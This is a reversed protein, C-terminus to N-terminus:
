MSTHTCYVGGDSSVPHKGYKKNKNYKAASVARSSVLM